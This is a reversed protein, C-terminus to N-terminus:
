VIMGLDIQSTRDTPRFRLGLEKEVFLVDFLPSIEIFLQIKPSSGFPNKSFLAHNVCVCWEDGFSNM